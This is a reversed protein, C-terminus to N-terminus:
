QLVWRYASKAECWAVSLYVGVGPFLNFSSQYTGDGNYSYGDSSGDVGFSVQSIDGDGSTDEVAIKFSIGLLDASPVPMTIVNNGTAAATVVTTIRVTHYNNKFFTTQASLDLNGNVVKYSTDRKVDSLYAEKDFFTSRYIEKRNITTNYYELGNPVTELTCTIVAGTGSGGTITITPASSYGSGKLLVTGGTIVGGSYTLSIAAGSGGGGSITIVVGAGTGYGSGGNSVVVSGVGFRLNSPGSGRPPLFGGDSRNVDLAAATNSVSTSTTTGIVIGQSGDLALYRASIRLGSRVGNQGNAATNASSLSTNIQYYNSGSPYSAGTTYETTSTSNITLYSVNTPGSTTGLGFGALSYLGNSGYSYASNSIYWRGDYADLNADGASIRVAKPRTVPNAVISFYANAGSIQPGNVYLMNINTTQSFAFSHASGVSNVHFYGNAEDYLLKNNGILPANAGNSRLIYTSAIGGSQVTPINFWGSNWIALQGTNSNAVLDGFVNGTLSNMQAATMPPAPRSAMATTNVSFAVGGSGSPAFINVGTFTQGAELMALTGTVDPLTYVRNATITSADFTRTFGDARRWSPRGSADAYFRFGSSPASPASGLAGFEEFGRADLRGQANVFPISNATLFGSATAAKVLSDVDVNGIASNVFDRVAKQTPIRWHTPALFQSDRSIEAVSKGRLRISDKAEVKDTVLVRKQAMGLFSFVMMAFLFFFRM